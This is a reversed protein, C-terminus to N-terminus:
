KPLADLIELIKEAAKFGPAVRGNPFILTPTSGIGLEAALRINEDVQGTECTPPPLDKGAFSDELLQAGKGKACLIAKAKDKAKPHMALPFMKVFFAVDDRQAVVKKVEAHLKICFPCEPDDFVIVRHKADRKGYVVADDLPIKSLDVTKIEAVKSFLFQRSPDLYAVGTRGGVEVTVLWFGPIEAERVDLVKDVVFGELLPRVEELPAPAAAPPGEGRAPLAALLGAAVILPPVFRGLQM